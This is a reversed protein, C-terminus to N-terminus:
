ARPSLVEATSVACGAQSAPLEEFRSWCEFQLLNFIKRGVDIEGLRHRDLDRLINDVNYIGRERATASTIIERAPGQLANSVWQRVPVPFGFKDSRVRVSEPIRDRMAERLLFKNWPGRIRWEPPLGFAYEVLRHDLFPVRAEISHAMSNRDETRLYLPLPQETVSLALSDHLNMPDPEPRRTALHDALPAAFWDDARLRDLWRQDALRRYAPVSSLGGQVMHRLQRALRAVTSGGHVGCYAGIEQAAMAVSGRRLLSSWYDRFYNPYGALTEDAGQGNLIVKIGSSATLRMLEYSVLLNISHFPEDQHWMVEKLMSWFRQPDNGLVTLSAGTQEITDRIYSSEDYEEAIYSFARLAQDNGEARRIRAAACIISTSDLGGSLHVGVPVDSRMHLRVADEFLESFKSAPNGDPPRREQPIQWYRWQRYHGDRALEFAHAAPLREIGDFFTETGADLHGQLLFDAAVAWNIQTAYQQSARIAKLESAALLRQRDRWLFLPKIGFRDRAGFVVGRTRDHILFAWMGNLRPLCDAGWQMYARLLVETDGTSRFAHGQAELERRLERFNYIEGNFVITYRGDPTTMPQHGAPSLDLISLRRFAFGVSDAIYEGSDDPGRHVISAAMRRLVDTEIPGGDFRIMAAFGCM